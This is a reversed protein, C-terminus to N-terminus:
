QYQLFRTTYSISKTIHITVKNLYLKIHLSYVYTHVHTRALSVGEKEKFSSCQLHEVM